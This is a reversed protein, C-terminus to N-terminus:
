FRWSLGFSPLRPILTDVGKEFSVRGNSEITRPDYGRPNDRDYVNFVDVFASLRSGRVDFDRSARLDLRHYAAMREANREGYLREVTVQGSALTDIAYTFGTTPWGTHFSWAAGLRWVTSPRWTLDLAVTHRQDLTRPIQIGVDDTARALAYSATWAVRRAPSRSVLLEIGRARGSAPAFLRRDPEIEPFVDISNDVSTWRPRLRPLKREYVEMRLALNHSAQHEIGAVRHEALEARDFVTRGDQVQLQYLAQPQSYRGWAVRLTTRSTLALAAAVRPSVQREHTWSQADLRLGTETTLARLPQLRLTAYAGSAVGNPELTSTARVEFPVIAGSSVRLQRDLRDYAYSADGHQLEGGFSLMARTTPAWRWDQRLAALRLSREDAVRLDQAGDYRSVRTGRRDWTLRGVSAVTAISLGARLEADATAWAYSSAYASELRPKDPADQYTLADGAHLVHLAVTAHDGLHYSTKALVDYYTPHLDDEEGAARLAYELFGRRASLQWGGRDGSFTGSSSARVTSLTLALETQRASGPPPDVTRMTMVGTLRNGIRADFGGTVLDLGEVAAVDIISMAGDFDKLHFPEILELGDLSAYVEDNAGGRVHFAASFDSAAVGPLRSVSRFLDEGIQPAARLQDRSLTQRLALRQDMVGYSGPTVVVTALTVTSGALSLVVDAPGGARITDTAPVFGLRRARAMLPTLPADHVTFRGDPGTRVRATFGGGIEEVVVAADAIASHTASDIIVGRLSRTSGPRAATRERVVLSQGRPSVLLELGTGRVLDMLLASAALTDSDVTVPTTLAPVDGASVLDLRAARAVARLAEVLPQRRVHISVITRLAEVGNGSREIPVFESQSDARVPALVLALAAVLLGSVARLTRGRVVVCRM